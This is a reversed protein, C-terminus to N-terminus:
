MRCSSSFQVASMLVLPILMCCIGGYGAASILFFVAMLAVPFILLLLPIERSSMGKLTNHFLCSNAISGALLLLLVICQMGQPLFSSSIGSILREGAEQYVALILLPALISPLSCYFIRRGTFFETCSRGRYKEALFLIISFFMCLLPVLFSFLIMTNKEWKGPSAMFVCAPLGALFFCEEFFHFLRKRKEGPSCFYRLVFYFLLLGAWCYYFYQHYFGTWLRFIYWIDGMFGEHYKERFVWPFPVNEGSSFYGPDSSAKLIRSRPLGSTFISLFGEPFPSDDEGTFSRLNEELKEPDTVPVRDSALLMRPFAVPLVNKYIRCLQPAVHDIIQQYHDSKM